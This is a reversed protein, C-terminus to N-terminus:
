GYTLMHIPSVLFTNLNDFFSSSHGEVDSMTIVVSQDLLSDKYGHKNIYDM